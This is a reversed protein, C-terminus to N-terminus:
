RLAFATTSIPSHVHTLGYTYNVNKIQCISRRRHRYAGSQIELKL